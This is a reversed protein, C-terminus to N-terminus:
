QTICAAPLDFWRLNDFDTNVTAEDTASTHQCASLLQRAEALYGALASEPAKDDHRPYRLTGDADYGVQSLRM